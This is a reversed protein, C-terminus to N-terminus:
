AYKTVEYFSIQIGNKEAYSKEILCGTSTKWRQCLLLEDCLSLLEICYDMGHNYTVDNYLFGITHIPSIYLVNPNKTALKRIIKEVNDKNKLEGNYPHAIYVRKM